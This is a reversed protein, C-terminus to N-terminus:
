RNGVGKGQWRAATRTSAPVYQVLLPVLHNAVFRHGAANWHGDTQYYLEPRETRFPIRLLPYAGFLEELRELRADDIEVLVGIVPWGRSTCIRLAEAILAYTLEDGTSSAPNAARPVVSPSRVQRLLGILHSDALGPVAEIAQQALRSGGPPLVPREVLKNGALEFLAERRNDDFDNAMVQLVVLRPAYAPARLFKVWRGNGNDGMAANVMPIEPAARQLLAVYQEGDNVGYGMTFSDGLFLVPRSGPPVTRDQRFGQANTSLRMTFEPTKRVIRADRKLWKGYVPDYTTFSPGVNRVPVLLRVLLEAGALALITAALVLGLRKTWESIHRGVPM